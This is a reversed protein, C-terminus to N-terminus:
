IQPCTKKEFKLVHKKKLNSSINKKLNSSMNKEFKIHKKKLNSSMNKKLNSSMNKEFILVHKKKLNSSM